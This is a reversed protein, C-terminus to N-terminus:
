LIVLRQLMNGKKIIQERIETGGDSDFRVTFTEAVSNADCAILLALLMIIPIFKKM